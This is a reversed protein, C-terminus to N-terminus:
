RPLISVASFLLNLAAMVAQYAAADEDIARALLAQLQLGDAQVAEAEGHVAAYSPKSLTLRAVMTALTSGLAGALASASGGGPTPDASAFRDLLEGTPLDLLAPTTTTM